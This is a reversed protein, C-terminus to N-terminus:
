CRLAQRLSNMPEALSSSLELWHGDDRGCTRDISRVSFSARCARARRCPRIRRLLAELSPWDQAFILAHGASEALEQLHRFGNDKTAVLLRLPGPSLACLLAVDWILKTDAANKHPSAARFVSCLQAQLPPNVGFGNYQLDAYARVRLRRAEALPLVRQLCDHVNGLDVIVVTSAGDCDDLDM